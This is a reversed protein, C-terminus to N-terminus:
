VYIGQFTSLDEYDISINLELLKRYNHFRIEELLQTSLNHIIKERNIKLDIYRLGLEDAVSRANVNACCAVVGGAFLIQIFSLNFSDFRSPFIFLTNPTKVLDLVESQSAIRSLEINDIVNLELLLMKEYEESGFATPGYVQAATFISNKEVLELFLDYGKTYEKRGFFVPTINNANIKEPPNVYSVQCMPFASLEHFKAEYGQMRAYEGSFGYASDSERYLIAEKKRLFRVLAKNRMSKPKTAFVRANSGHLAAVLKDTKISEKNLKERISHQPTLWDPIDVVDFTSGHVAELLGGLVDGSLVADSILIETLNGPVDRQYHKSTSFSYFHIEPNSEIVKKYTGGGGNPVNAFINIACLLVDRKQCYNVHHFETISLMRPEQSPFKGARFSIEMSYNQVLDADWKIMTSSDWLMTDSVKFNDYHHHWGTIREKVNYRPIRDRFVKRHCQEPSRFSYHKLLQNIPFLNKQGFIEHGGSNAFNVRQKKNRWARQINRHSSIGTFYGFSPYNRKFQQEIESPRFEFVTFDIVDYNMKNALEIIEKLNYDPSSSAVREDADLRIIWHHEAQNAIIECRRLLSRLSFNLTRTSPFREITVNSKDAYKEIILEWTGDDSWNDIIHLDFGAQLADHLAQDILDIENRVSLICLIQITEHVLKQHIRLNECFSFLYNSEREDISEKNFNGAVLKKIGIKQIVENFKVKTRVNDIIVIGVTYELIEGLFKAIEAEELDGIDLLGISSTAKSQINKLNYFDIINLEESLFKITDDQIHTTVFHNCNLRTSIETLFKRLKFPAEM